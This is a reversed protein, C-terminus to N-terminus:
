PQPPAPPGLWSNSWGQRALAPVCGRPTGRHKLQKENKKAGALSGPPSNRLEGSAAGGWGPKSNQLKIAPARSHGPFCGKERGEGTGQRARNGRELQSQVWLPCGFFWSPAKPEKAATNGRGAASPASHRRGRLSCGTRAGSPGMEQFMRNVCGKTQHMDGDRMGLWLSCICM